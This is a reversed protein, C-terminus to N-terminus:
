LERLHVFQSNLGSYNLCGELTKVSLKYEPESSVSEKIAGLPFLFTILKDLRRWFLNSGNDLIEM